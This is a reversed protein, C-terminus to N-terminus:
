TPSEGVWHVFPFHPRAANYFRQDGTWLELGEREPLAGDLSDYAHGAGVIGAIELARPALRHDAPEFAVEAILFALARAAPQALRGGLVHRCLASAAEAAYLNPVIRRVGDLDWRAIRARVARTHLEQLVLPIMFSTDVVVDTV